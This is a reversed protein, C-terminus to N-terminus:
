PVRSMLEREYRLLLRASKLAEYYRGAAMHARIPRILRSCSPAAELVEAVLAQFTELHQDAAGPDVYILQLALYIRECPSQVAGPSLIDSERLVPVRNEILLRNRSDGNRIVANGVIVREHPKLTLRLAM